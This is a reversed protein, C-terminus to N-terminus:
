PTWFPRAATFIYPPGTPIASSATAPCACLGPRGWSITPTTTPSLFTPLPRRPSTPKRLRHLIGNGGGTDMLFHRGKLGDRLLLATTFCDTNMAAGTGLYILEEM